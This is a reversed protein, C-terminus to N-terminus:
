RKLYYGALAGILPYVYRNGRLAPVIGEVVQVIQPVLTTLALAIAAAITVILTAGSPRRVGKLVTSGAHGVLMVIVPYVLAYVYIMNDRAVALGRAITTSVLDGLYWVALFQLGFLVIKPLM